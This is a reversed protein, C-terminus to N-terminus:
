EGEISKIYMEKGKMIDLLSGACAPCKYKLDKLIFLNGCDRCKLEVPQIEINLRAGSAVTGTGAAEFAFEFLSPKVQLYEGIVINVRDIRSIRNESAVALIIRYVDEVIAIEHM